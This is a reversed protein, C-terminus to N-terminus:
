KAKLVEFVIAELGDVERDTLEDFQRRKNRSLKGHGQLCLRIFLDARPDPMDVVDRMRRRVADFASLFELEATFEMEITDRIFGFLQEAIFTMDPFKYYAATPNVVQLDGSDSMRYEVHQMLPRSYSELTADYRPLQKLMVASVPFIVAEPTFGKAALVHHILFRHLRGNGDEFPHLFVFGFGAVAATIVPHIGAGIMQRCCTMWGEMLAALDEPRPPVYHILEKGPGLNQGVYNQINRFGKAAYREDV